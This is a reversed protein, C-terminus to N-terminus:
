FCVVVLVQFWSPSPSSESAGESESAPDGVTTGEVVAAKLEVRCTKLAALSEPAEAAVQRGLESWTGTSDMWPM